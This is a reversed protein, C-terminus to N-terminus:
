THADTNKLHMNIAQIKFKSVNNLTNVLLTKQCDM